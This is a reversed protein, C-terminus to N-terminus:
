IRGRFQLLGREDLTCEAMSVSKEKQLETPLNREKSLVLTTLEQYLEDEQRSRHWLDQMDRDEFVRIEKTFDIEKSALSQVQVSKLHKNQFLRIFRSRIREDDYNAPLDQKHRLLADPKRMTKGPKWELSFHFRSLLESWRVQRESLQRECYFYQLNKHDTLVTFKKVMHLEPAWAELCRVIALLKKDHIPYNAETPSHKKSYYAVPQWNDDKDRQLLLGGTAYGSSDAEVLTDKEPDFHALIPATILLEKISEFPQDCAEDWHFGMEKKTLNILPEAIDSFNPIFVRYFNAFAIFARVAKVSTPTSWERIAVIKDPDVQISVEAELIYGLYKVQKTEFECKDIDIQLGADMLRQLVKGVKQRHDQLLGSSYILIDDVYASVFDDLYDQLVSNVYQQFAAPAGTLGFPAVRWEFLGYRTRFATKWEEGQAVHIKHFAAIIDLKTLWKAKAV